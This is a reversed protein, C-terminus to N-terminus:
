NKSRKIDNNNTTYENTYEVEIIYINKSLIIKNIQLNSIKFKVYKNKILDLYKIKKTLYGNTNSLKVNLFNSDGYEIYFSEAEKLSYILQEFSYINQSTEKQDDYPYLLFLIIIGVVFVPILKKYIRIKRMHAYYWARMGDESLINIRWGGLENWGKIKRSCSSVAIIPTGEKFIDIPERTKEASQSVVMEGTVEALVM